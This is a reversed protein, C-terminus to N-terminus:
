YIIHFYDDIYLIKYYGAAEDAQIGSSAKAIEYFFKSPKTVDSTLTGTIVRTGGTSRIVITAANADVTGDHTFKWIPYTVPLNVLVSNGKENEISGSSLGEHTIVHFNKSHLYNTNSFKSLSTDKDMSSYVNKHAGM